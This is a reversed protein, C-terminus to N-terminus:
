EWDKLGKAEMYKEKLLIIFIRVDAIREGRYLVASLLGNRKAICIPM